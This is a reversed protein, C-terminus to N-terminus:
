QNKKKQTKEKKRKKKKKQVKSTATVFDLLGRTNFGISVLPLDTLVLAFFGVAVVVVVVLVM